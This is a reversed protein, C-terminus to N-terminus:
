VIRATFSARIRAAPSNPFAPCTLPQFTLTKSQAYDKGFVPSWKEPDHEPLGCFM